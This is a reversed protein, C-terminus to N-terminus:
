QYPMQTWLERFEKQVKKKTVLTIVNDVTDNNIGFIPLHKEKICTKFKKKASPLFQGVGQASSFKLKFGVQLNFLCICLFM